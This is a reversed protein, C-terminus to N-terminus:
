QGMPLPTYGTTAMVRAYPIRAKPPTSATRVLAVLSPTTARSATSITPGRDVSPRTDDGDRGRIEDWGALSKITDNNLTGTIWDDYQTGRCVSPGGTECKKPISVDHSLDIRGNKDPFAAQAKERSVALLLAVACTVAVAAAIMVPLYLTRRRRLDRGKRQLPVSRLYSSGLFSRV